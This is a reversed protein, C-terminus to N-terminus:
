LIVQMHEYPKGGLMKIGATKFGHREYLRKASPNQLDVLLGAHTHGLAKAHACAAQLLRGGIGMGQRNPAVSVTDIYFEGATTEPELVFTFAHNKLLFDLFPARLTALYAGDYGTVSGGIGAEDEYVLTNRYSYQNNEQRFFHGFLPLAAAPDNSNVFKCALDEMAQVMLVAVAESDAAVAHRINVFM